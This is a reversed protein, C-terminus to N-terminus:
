KKGKRWKNIGADMVYITLAFIMMLLIVVFYFAVAPLFVITYFIDMVPVWVGTLEKEIWFRHLRPYLLVDWMEDIEYSKYINYVLVPMSIVTWIIIFTLM